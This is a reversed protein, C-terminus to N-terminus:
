CCRSDPHLKNKGSAEKLKSDGSGLRRITRSSKTIQISQSLRNSISDYRVKRTQWRQPM